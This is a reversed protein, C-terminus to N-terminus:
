LRFLHNLELRKLTEATFYIIDICDDFTYLVVPMWSEVSAKTTITHVSHFASVISFNTAPAVFIKVSCLTEYLIIVTGPANSIGKAM